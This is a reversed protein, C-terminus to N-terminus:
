LAVQFMFAAINVPAFGILYVKSELEHAVGGILVDGFDDMGATLHGLFVLGEGHVEITCADKGGVVRGADKPEAHILFGLSEVVKFGVNEVGEVVEAVKAVALIKHRMEGEAADFLEDVLRKELLHILADLLLGVEVGLDVFDHRELAEKLRCSGDIFGEM